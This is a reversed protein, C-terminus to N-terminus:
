FPVIDIKHYYLVERREDIQDSFRTQRSLCEFVLYTETIFDKWEVSTVPTSIIAQSAKLTFEESGKRWCETSAMKDRCKAATYGYEYRELAGQINKGVEMM